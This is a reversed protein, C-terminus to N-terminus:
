RLGLRRLGIQLVDSLFESYSLGMLEAIVAFTGDPAFTPLPNIEIFWPQGAADVRFDIRAFDRCMLKEYVALSLRHLEEELSADLSGEVVYDYAVEPLGKRELAHLGIRTEKEVARQLVPLARPPDNGIVAVTFEGGGTIFAEVIADQRYTATCWAVQERLAEFTSVRSSPTIGKATGEGRPKVFLPFPAPFDEPDIADASRYCRYPPTPIGAAQALDKTWAKDLSLSLTLADSGLFPIGAMELLTPVYGERNRSRAGEAINIAVDVDLADIGDLLAQATGIRVPEFGIRRVAEELALVTDEPEFEADADPAEGEIWPYDEFLDYVLGIRM